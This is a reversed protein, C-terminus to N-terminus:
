YISCLQYEGLDSELSLTEFRLFKRLLKIEENSVWKFTQPTSENLIADEDDTSNNNRVGFYIGVGIAVIM